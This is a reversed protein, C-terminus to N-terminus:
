GPFPLVHARPPEKNEDERQYAAMKGHAVDFRMGDKVVIDM